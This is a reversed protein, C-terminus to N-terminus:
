EVEMVFPYRLPLPFLCCGPQMAHKQIAQKKRGECRVSCPNGWPHTLDWLWNRWACRIQCSAEWSGENEGLVKLDASFCKEWTLRPRGVKRKMEGYLSSFLAIHPLRGKDM